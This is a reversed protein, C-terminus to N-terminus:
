VRSKTLPYGLVSALEDVLAFCMDMGCGGISVAGSDHWRYGTADSVSSSVDIIEQKSCPKDDRDTWTRTVIGLVKIRRSMGSPAVHTVITFVDSGPPFINRLREVAANKRATKEAKTLKLKAMDRIRRPTVKM